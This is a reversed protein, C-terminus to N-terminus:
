SQMAAKLNHFVRLGDSGPLPLLNVVGFVLNIMGFTEMGELFFIAAFIFNLGSGSLSVIMRKFPKYGYPNWKVGIGKWNIAIDKIKGARTIFIALMHGGEHIFLTLLIMTIMLITIIVM